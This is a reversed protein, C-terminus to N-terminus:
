SKNILRLVDKEGDKQKTTTGQQQQETEMTQVSIDKSISKKRNRKRIKQPLHLFTTFSFLDIIRKSEKRNHKIM